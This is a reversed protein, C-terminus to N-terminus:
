AAGPLESIPRTRVFVVRVPTAPRRRAHMWDWELRCPTWQTPTPIHLATAMTGDGSPPHVWYGGAGNSFNPIPQPRRRNVGVETSALRVDLARARV